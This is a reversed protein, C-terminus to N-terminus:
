YEGECAHVAEEGDSHLLSIGTERRLTRRQCRATRAENTRSLVGHERPAALHPGGSNRWRRSSRSELDPWRNLRCCSHYPSWHPLQRQTCASGEPFRLSEQTPYSRRREM